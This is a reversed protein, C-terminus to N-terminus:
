GITAPEKKSIHYQATGEEGLDLMEVATVTRGSGLHVSGLHVSRLVM